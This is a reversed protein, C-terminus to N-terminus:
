WWGRGLGRGMWVIRINAKGRRSSGGGCAGTPKKSLGQCTLNAGVGCLRTFGQIRKRGGLEACVPWTRRNGKISVPGASTDATISSKPKTLQCRLEDIGISWALDLLM